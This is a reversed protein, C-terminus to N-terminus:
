ESKKGKLYRLGEEVYGLGCLRFGTEKEFEVLENYADELEAVLRAAEKKKNIHVVIKGNKIVHKRHEYFGVPFNFAEVSAKLDNLAVELAVTSTENDCEKLYQRSLSVIARHFETDGYCKAYREVDEILERVAAPANEIKELSHLFDYFSDSLGM